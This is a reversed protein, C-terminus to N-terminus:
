LIPGLEDAVFFHKLMLEQYDFSDAQRETIPHHQASKSRHHESTSDLVDVSFVVFGM